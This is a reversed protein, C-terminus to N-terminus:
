KEEYIHLLRVENPCLVEKLRLLGDTVKIKDISMRPFCVERLYKIDGGDLNKEYQFRKWEGLISGEQERITRRKLIYQRGEPMHDLIIECELQDTNTFLAELREPDDVAEVNVFYNSHYWRCNFCLIYYSGRETRTIIYNEGKKILLNGLQNLFSLVFYVPKRISATTLLGLNGNAVRYTDYHSGVWDSGMQICILDSYDWLETLTRAIYAGRFCSDNLYDRNSSTLNWESIYLRCGEGKLGTEEMMSRIAQMMTREISKESNQENFWSKDATNREYPFLIVSYFDPVCNEAVCRKMFDRQKELNWNAIAVFGGVQVNPVYERLVQYLYRFSRFYDFAEKEDHYFANDDRHHVDYCLEFIWQSVEEQGYRRVVHLIFDRIMAEWARRSAFEIYEYEFYIAEHENKIATNPRKGLDLYPHIHHAVLFDLIGDIEGYNYSGIQIGDTIMLKKSLVNWMRAYDFGLNDALFELHFQLNSQSLGHFSGINIARNWIKERQKGSTGDARIQINRKAEAKAPVLRRLKLEQRLEEQEKQKEQQKQKGDANIQSRYEAPTQGYIEKFVRNLVSASSFGNNLAIKAISLRSHSLDELAAKARVQNVYDAFYIGTQKKFFRSLTSTSVYLSEAIKALSLNYRFNDNVFQVIYHLRMNEDIQGGNKVQSGMQYHEFLCDLLQYLLSEKLCTTKRNQRVDQYILERFINRLDDYSRGTDATSNCFFCVDEGAFSSIIQGPYYVQCCIAEDSCRIRHLLSSNILVIDEKGLRCENEGIRVEAEGHILFLIEMEEHFHQPEQLAKKMQYNM